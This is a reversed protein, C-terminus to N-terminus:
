FRGGRGGHSRGGSSRHTSSGSSSQQKRSKSVNSYLFMDQQTRLHYTNKVLYDSAGSQRRKTNMSARMVLIVVAAVAAGILLSLPLVSWITKSGRSSIGTASNSYYGDIPSGAKYADLYEPLASLYAYFGDYYYGDSLYPLIMDGLKALSYDTFATIAEGSTSIYWEREEMALLFLIADETDWWNNETLGDAFDQASWGGLNGVTVILIDMGYTQSLEQALDQLEINEQDTLIDAQDVVYQVGQFTAYATVPISILLCVILFCTLVTRKM